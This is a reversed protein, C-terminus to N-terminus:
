VVSKGALETIAHALEAESLDWTVTRQDVQFQQPAYAGYIKFTERAAAIRMAWDEVEFMFAKGTEPDKVVEGYRTVVNRKKTAHLARKLTAMAEVLNLGVMHAIKEAERGTAERLSFLFASHERSITERVANSTISYDAGVREAWQELEAGNAPADKRYRKWIEPALAVAPLNM